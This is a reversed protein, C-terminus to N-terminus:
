YVIPEQGKGSAHISLGQASMVRKAKNMFCIRVFIYCGLAKVTSVLSHTSLPVHM